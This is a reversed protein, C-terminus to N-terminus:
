KLYPHLKQLLNQQETEPLTDLHNIFASGYRMLKQHVQNHDSNLYSFMVFTTLIAIFCAFIGASVAWLAGRVNLKRQAKQTNQDLHKSASNLQETMPLLRHTLEQSIKESLGSSVETISEEVTTKLKSELAVFADMHSILKTSAVDLTDASEQAKNAYSDLEKKKESLSLTLTDMRQLLKGIVGQHDLTPETSQNSDEKKM